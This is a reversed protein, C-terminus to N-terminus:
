NKHVFAETTVINVFFFARGHAILNCNNTYSAFLFNYLEAPLQLACNVVGTSSTEKIHPKPPM